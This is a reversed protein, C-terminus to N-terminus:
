WFRHNARCMSGRRNQHWFVIHPSGGVRPVTFLPAFMCVFYSYRKVLYICPSTREGAAKSSRMYKCTHSYTNNTHQSEHGWTHVPSSLVCDVSSCSSFLLLCLSVCLHIFFYISIPIRYICPYLNLQLLLSLLSFEPFRCVCPCVLMRVHQLIYLCSSLTVRLSLSLIPPKLALSLLNDGRWVIVSSTSLRSPQKGEM